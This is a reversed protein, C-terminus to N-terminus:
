ENKKKKKKKTKKMETANKKREREREIKANRNNMPACKGLTLSPEDDENIIIHLQPETTHQAPEYSDDISTLKLVNIIIMINLYSIIRSHTEQTHKHTHTHHKKRRDKVRCM